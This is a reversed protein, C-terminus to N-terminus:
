AELKRPSGVDASMFLDPSEGKEIRERMSGSGGFSPQVEIDLLPGAEKALESVVRRLSGAAFIAITEPQAASAAHASLALSGLTISLIARIRARSM